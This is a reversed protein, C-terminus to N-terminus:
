VFMQQLLGKKFAEIQEIQQDVATIKADIATLFDAIKEQEKRSPVKARLTKLDSANYSPLAGVQAYRSLRITALLVGTFEISILKNPIFAMMNNDILFNKARRKRELFIAAGVKAFIYSDKTIPKLKLRAIQDKTVYNNASNMVSENGPLNMDSVKFFPMGETNGQESTPFGVGSKFTGLDGLKKVEWDAYPRGGDGVFRIEQSFLKQMVGRKYEALLDRKRRLADLKADVASFVAAIKRQEELGPLRVVIKYIDEMNIRTVTSGISYKYIERKAKETILYISLYVPDIKDQKPRLLVMRQGMCIKLKKPVLCSEGAPAERTFLVDGYEPVARQTWEEFGDKTTHKIDDLILMGDRVNSTRVVLYESSEVYPATKHECDIVYCLDNITSTNFKSM